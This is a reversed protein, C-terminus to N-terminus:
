IHVYTRDDTDQTLMTSLTDDILVVGTNQETRDFSKAIKFGPRLSLYAEEDTSNKTLTNNTVFSLTQFTGDDSAYIFQQDNISVDAFPNDKNLVEQTLIDMSIPKGKERVDDQTQYDTANIADEQQEYSPRYIYPPLTDNVQYPILAIRFDELIKQYAIISPNSKRNSLWHKVDDNDLRLDLLKQSYEEFISMLERRPESQSYTESRDILEYRTDSIISHITDEAIRHTDGDKYFPTSTILKYYDTIETRIYM